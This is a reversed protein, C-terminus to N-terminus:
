RHEKYNPPSYLLFIKKKLYYAIALEMLVSTGLYGDIGNKPHNLVLVADNEAIQNFNARLQDTEIVHKLDEDLNDQIDPNKIMFDTDLPISVKFGKEELYQQKIKIDKAFTMSSIIMIKSSIKPLM